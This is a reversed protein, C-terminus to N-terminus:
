DVSKRKHGYYFMKRLDQQTFKHEGTALQAKPISGNDLMVQRAYRKFFSRVSTTANRAYNVSYPKQTKPNTQSRVYRYFDVVKYGMEKAWEEKDEAQKYESILQEPQKDIWECFKRLM